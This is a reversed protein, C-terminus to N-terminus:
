ERDWRGRKLIWNNGKNIKKSILSIGNYQPYPIFHERLIRKTEQKKWKNIKEKTTKLTKRLAYKREKNKKKKVKKREQGAGKRNQKGKERM